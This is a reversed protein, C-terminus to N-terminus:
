WSRSITEASFSLPRSGVRRAEAALNFREAKGGGSKPNFFLVPQQPPDARALEVGPEFARGGAGVALVFLALLVADEALHGVSLALVVAGALAVVGVGIDVFRLLGRRVIGNALAVLGIAACLLVSIGAPFATVTLVVAFVVSAALLVLAVAAAVRRSM